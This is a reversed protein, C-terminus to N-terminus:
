LFKVCRHTYAHNHMCACRSTSMFRGCAVSLKYTGCVVPFVGTPLLSCLNASQCMKHAKLYRCLPESKEGVKDDLWVFERVFEITLKKRAKLYRCMPESKEGVKDDLWVFEKVFEITLMKRAKMYRYM